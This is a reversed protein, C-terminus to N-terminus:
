NIFEDNTSRCIVIEGCDELRRIVSVIKQQSEEVDILRVPGMFEMDEKLMSAAGKSLNRFIKDRVEEDANKLAKAMEQQDVEGLIKQITRDDLMLIDEFVFMRKKIEEYVPSKKEKLAKTVKKECSRDTLNLIEVFNQNGGLVLEDSIENCKNFVYQEVANKIKEDLSIGASIMEAVRLQQEFDLNQYLLSSKWADISSLIIAVIYDSSKQLVKVLVSPDLKDLETNNNKELKKEKVVGLEFPLKQDTIVRKTYVSMLVDKTLGTNECFEDIQQLDEDSIEFTIQAM